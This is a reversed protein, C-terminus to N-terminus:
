KIYYNKIEKAISDKEYSIVKTAYSKVEEPGHSMVYANDSGKLAEIDNYGDGFSNIVPMDLKLVEITDKIGTIKSTNMVSIEIDPLSGMYIKAFGKQKLEMRKMINFREKDWYEKTFLYSIKYIRDGYNKLALEKNLKQDFKKILTPNTEKWIEKDTYYEEYQKGHKSFDFLKVGSDVYIGMLMNEENAQNFALNLSEKPLYKSFIEKKNEVDYLTTGNFAIIYKIDAQKAYEIARLYHRGTNILAIDNKENIMSIAKANEKSLKEEKDLLTKDLDFSWLTKRKMNVSERIKKRRNEIENIWLNNLYKRHKDIDYIYYCFIPMWLISTFIVLFKLWFSTIYKNNEHNYYKTLFNDINFKGVLKRFDYFVKKSYFIPSIYSLFTLSISAWFIESSTLFSLTLGTIFFFTFILSFITLLSPLRYTNNKKM